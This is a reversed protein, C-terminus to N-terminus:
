DNLQIYVCHPTFGTGGFTSNDTICAHCFKDQSPHIMDKTFQLGKYIIGKANEILESCPVPHCDQGGCCAASYWDHILTLYHM